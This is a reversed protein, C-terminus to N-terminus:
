QQYVLTDTYKNNITPLCTHRYVQQKNVGGSLIQGVIWKLMPRELLDVNIRREKM